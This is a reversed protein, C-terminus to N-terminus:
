MAILRSDRRTTIEIYPEKPSPVRGVPMESETTVAIVKMTPDFAYDPARAVRRRAIDQTVAHSVWQGVVVWEEGGSRILRVSSIERNGCLDCIVSVAKM